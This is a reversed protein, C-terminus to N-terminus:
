DTMCLDINVQKTYFKLVSEDMLTVGLDLLGVQHVKSLATLM